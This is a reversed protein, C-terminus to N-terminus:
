RRGVSVGLVLAGPFSLLPLDAGFEEACGGHGTLPPPLWLALNTGPQCPSRHVTIVEDYARPRATVGNIVCAAAGEAAFGTIGIM